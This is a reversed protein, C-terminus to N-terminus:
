VLEDAQLLLAQSITLGLAKAKGINIILYYKTPQEVPLDRPKAGKLIHDVYVAARRLLDDADPGYSMLGGDRVVSGVEYLAPISRADAFELVRKRNLITLADTVLMLADPRQETMRTFAFDFDNPERVGVPQITMHLVSAAREIERFRLTMALDDANWLVAVRTAQPVMQRLLELRKASLDTAQASIGTVNGGPQSLSAVLGVGVPDGADTFVIPISSTASRLAAAEIGSGYTVVVDPRLAVLEAVRVPLLEKRADAWRGLFVANKGDVYGLEGLAKRLAVPAAGDPPRTGPSLFGIRWIRHETQALADLPLALVASAFANVIERRTTM